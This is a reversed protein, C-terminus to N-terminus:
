DKPRADRRAQAVRVAQSVRGAEMPSGIRRAKKKAKPSMGENATQGPPPRSPRAAALKMALAKRASAILKPKATRRAREDNLRALAENLISAKLRNGRDAAEASPKAGKGRSQRRQRHAIDRARDRRERVLATLKGLEDDSLSSLAPRHSREVLEAEDQSLARRESKRSTTM